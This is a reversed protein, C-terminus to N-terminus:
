LKAPYRMLLTAHVVDTGTAHYVHPVDSRWSIHEGPGATLPADLPGAALTGSFVTVHETAGELHAPSNQTIGPPVRLRYLEYTVHDDEFLEMLAAEMATGRVNRPEPPSDLIAGIPVGLQATIAWLTELTPNRTGTEVGSLTAKGISARRALESLSVGRAQRLQRVRQGIVRPDTDPAPRSDM